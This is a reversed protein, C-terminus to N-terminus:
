KADRPRAIRRTRSTRFDLAECRRRSPGVAVLATSDRKTSADVGVWIPLSKDRLLPGPLRVCADWSAMDGPKVAITIVPAVEAEEAEDLANDTLEKLVVLLWDDVAHGTQNQLPRKTCFEMLRSVRFAVRTLKQKSSAELKAVIQLYRSRAPATKAQQFHPQAPRPTAEARGTSSSKDLM